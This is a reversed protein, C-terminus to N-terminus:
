QWPHIPEADPRYLRSSRARIWEVGDLDVAAKNAIQGSARVTDGNDLRHYAKGPLKIHTAHCFADLGALLEGRHGGGAAVLDLAIEEVPRHWSAFDIFYKGSLHAKRPRLTAM